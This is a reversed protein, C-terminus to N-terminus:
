SANENWLSRLLISRARIRSMLEPNLTEKSLLEKLDERNKFELVKPGYTPFVKLWKKSRIRELREVANGKM